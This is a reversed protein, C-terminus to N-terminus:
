KQSDFNPEPQHPAVSELPRMLKYDFSCSLGMLADCGVASVQVKVGQWLCITICGAGQVRCGAGQVRCGADQMVPQTGM